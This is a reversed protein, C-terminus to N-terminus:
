GGPDRVAQVPIAKVKGKICINYYTNKQYPTNTENMVKGTDHLLYIAKLYFYDIETNLKNEIVRVM